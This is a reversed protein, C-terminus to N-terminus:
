ITHELVTFILRMVVPMGTLLLIENKPPRVASEILSAGGGIMIHPTQTNTLTGTGAANIGIYNGIVQNYNSAPDNIAIGNTAVNDKVINCYGGNQIGVAPGTGVCLKKGSVDTGIYNGIILNSHADWQIGVQGNTNGSIINRETSTSGGIINASANFFITIGGQGNGVSNEGTIDTGIYNGIVRNGITGEDYIAIGNGGNGSILNGEGLPGSGQGQDGGIVNNKAGHNIFIGHGPFDIIQLGEVINYDSTIMLGQAGNSASGDLIVGANSGDITLNGVLNPLQSKVSITTPQSPPFVTPDFIITDGAQANSLAWRLTGQGSDASSSITIQRGSM